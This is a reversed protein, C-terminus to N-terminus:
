DFLRKIKKEFNDCSTSYNAKDGAAKLNTMQWLDSFDQWYRTLGLKDAMIKAMVASETRSRTTVCKNNVYGAKYLETWLEKARPSCLIAPVNDFNLGDSNDDSCIRMIEDTLSQNSVFYEEMWALVAESHKNVQARLKAEIEYCKDISVAEKQSTNEEKGYCKHITAHLVRQVEGRYYSHNVSQLGFLVAYFLMAVETQTDARDCSAGDRDRYITYIDSWLQELDLAEMGRRQLLMDLIEVADAFLQERLLVMTRCVQIFTGRITECLKYYPHKGFSERIRDCQNRLYTKM